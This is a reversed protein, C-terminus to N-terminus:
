IRITLGAEISNGYIGPLDFLKADILLNEEKVQRTLFNGGLEVDVMSSIRLTLKPTVVGYNVTELLKKERAEKAEDRISIYRGLVGFSIDDTLECQVAAETTQITGTARESEVKPSSVFRVRHGVGMSIAGFRKGTEIGIIKDTHTHAFDSGSQGLVAGVLLTVTTRNAGSGFDLWNFGLKFEPNGKQSSSSDTLSADSSSTMRYNASLFVDWPTQLRGEFHYHKLKSESNDHKFTQSEYSSSFNAIGSPSYAHSSRSVKSTSHPAAAHSSLPTASSSKSSIEVAGSSKPHYEEEDAYDMLAMANLCYGFFFVLILIISKKM